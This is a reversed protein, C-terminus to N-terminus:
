CVANKEGEAPKVADDGFRHVGFRYRGELFDNGGVVGDNELFVQGHQEQEHPRGVALDEVHEDGAVHAEFLVDADEHAALVEYRDAGVQGHATWPVFAPEVGHFHEAVMGHEQHLFVVVHVHLEVVLYRAKELGPKEEFPQRVNLM